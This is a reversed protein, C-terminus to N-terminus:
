ETASVVQRAENYLFELDEEDIQLTELSATRFKPWEETFDLGLQQQSFHEALQTTAIYQRHIKPLNSNPALVSLDHHHRISLSMDEPLWWSRTLASGVIAHNTQVLSEEIATFETQTNRNAQGLVEKYQPFRVLLIPIGCDHFLGFTYADDAHFGPIDLKYALWASLRATRASTDWFRVMNPTNPFINRLIIGAITHSANRLGLITLADHVSRARQSRAFFPSNTTKILGAALAVDASILDALRHYDPEQKHMETMIRLLIEPCPPIEIGLLSRELQPDIKPYQIPQSDTM